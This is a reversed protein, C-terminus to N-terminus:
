AEDNRAAVGAHEFSADSISSAEAAVEATAVTLCVPGTVVDKRPSVCM